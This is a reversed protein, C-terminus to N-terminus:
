TPAFQSAFVMCKRTTAEQALLSAGVSALAVGRQRGAGDQCHQDISHDQLRKRNGMVEGTQNRHDTKQSGENQRLQAALRIGMLEPPLEFFFNSRLLPDLSRNELLTLIFQM